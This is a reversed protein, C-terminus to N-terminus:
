ELHTFIKNVIKWGADGKVLSLYDFYNYGLM